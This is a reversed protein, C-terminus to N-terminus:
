HRDSSDRMFCSFFFCSPYDANTRLPWQSMRTALGFQRRGGFKPDLLCPVAKEGGSCRVKRDSFYNFPPPCYSPFVSLQLASSIPIFLDMDEM